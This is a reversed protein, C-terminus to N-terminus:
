KWQLARLLLAGGSSGEGPTESTRSLGVSGVSSSTSCSHGSSSVRVTSLACHDFHPFVGGRCTCLAHRWNDTYLRDELLCVTCDVCRSSLWLRGVGGRPRLAASLLVHSCTASFNHVLLTSPTTSVSSSTPSSSTCSRM